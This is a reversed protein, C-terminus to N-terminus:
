SCPLFACRFEAFPVSPEWIGGDGYRGSVVDNLVAALAPSKEEVPVPHYRHQYRLEEVAPTLHGFFFVNEEGVEEAIEINAGDVTGLLLGGNLCFKMNSTGSAETGATSIHESIDSAPILLEAVSFIRLSADSISSPGGIFSSFTCSVSYDPLFLVTLIGKVDPDANIVKGVNVILRILLKAMWYGPAAKGAFLVVRPNVKAREKVPMAKITLYRHIV